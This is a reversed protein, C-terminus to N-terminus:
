EEEEKTFSKESALGTKGGAMWLTNIWEPHCHNVSKPQVGFKSLWQSNWLMPIGYWMSHIVFLPSKRRPFVPKRHKDVIIRSIKTVGKIM